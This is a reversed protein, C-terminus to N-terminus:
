LGGSAERTGGGRKHGYGKRCSSLIHGLVELGKTVTGERHLLVDLLQPALGTYGPAGTGRSPKGRSGFPPRPFGDLTGALV